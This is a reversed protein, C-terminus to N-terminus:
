MATPIALQYLPTARSINMCPCDDSTQSIISDAASPQVFPLAKRLTVSLITLALGTVYDIISVLIPIMPKELNQLHCHEDTGAGVHANGHTTSRSLNPPPLTITQPAM